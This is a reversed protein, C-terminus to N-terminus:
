FDQKGYIYMSRVQDRVNEEFQELSLKCYLSDDMLDVIVSVCGRDPDESMHCEQRCGTAPGNVLQCREKAVMDQLQQILTPFNKSYFSAENVPLVYM